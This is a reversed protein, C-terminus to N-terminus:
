IVSRVLQSQGAFGSIWPVASLLLHVGQWKSWLCSCIFWFWGNQTGSIWPLLWVKGCVLVFAPCYISFGFVSTLILPFVISCTMIDTLETTMVWEPMWGCMRANILFTEVLCVTRIGEYVFEVINIKAWNISIFFFFIIPVWYETNRILRLTVYVSVPVYQPPDWTVSNEAVGVSCNKGNFSSIIQHSTQVSCQLDDHM